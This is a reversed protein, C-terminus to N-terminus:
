KVYQKDGRNLVKYVVIITYKNDISHVLYVHINKCEIFQSTRLWFKQIGSSRLQLYIM